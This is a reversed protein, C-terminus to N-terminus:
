GAAFNAESRKKWSNWCIKAEYLPDECAAATINKCTLHSCWLFLIIQSCPVSFHITKPNKVALFFFLFFFSFQHSSFLWWSTDSRDVCLLSHMVNNCDNEHIKARKKWSNMKMGIWDSFLMLFWKTKWVKWHLSTPAKVLVAPAEAPAEVDLQPPRVSVPSPTSDFIFVFTANPWM